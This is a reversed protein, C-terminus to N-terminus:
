KLKKAFDWFKKFENRNTIGVRGNLKKEIFAFRKIFKKNAKNLAETSKIKLFYSLNILTFFIDGFEEHISKENENQLAIRLEEVEEHIKDLIQNYNDWEFGFKNVEDSIIGTAKIPELYTIKSLLNDSISDKHNEKYNSIKLKNWREEAEEISIKEKQLFIHPHRDKIKKNLYNIVEKISFKEKEYEIESHLMIQLLIDGLEERMNNIDQNEIAEIFEYSEELLYPLLTKHTQSKHWPCGEERDRIANINDLLEKFENLADIKYNEFKEPKKRRSM